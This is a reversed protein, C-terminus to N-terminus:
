RNRLGVLLQDDIWRRLTAGMSQAADNDPFRADLDACVEAFSEGRALQEIAVFETEGISIFHPQMEKRWVLLWTPSDLKRAAPPTDAKDLAEWLRAANHTIPALRMTPHFDFGIHTWHEATLVAFDELRLPAADSGEFAARMMADIMAVEAVDPDDPFRARLWDPLSQGFHQLTTEGPPHATIFAEATVAFSEDGLYAWTREFVDQLVEVLRARYAHHYIDLRQGIAIRGGPAIADTVVGDHAHLYRIFERQLEALPLPTPTTPTM